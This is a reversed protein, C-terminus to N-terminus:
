QLSPPLSSTIMADQEVPTAGDHVAKEFQIEEKSPGAPADMGPQKKRKKTERSAKKEADRRRQDAKQQKWFERKAETSFRYLEHNLILWGGAIEKIRRGENDPTFSEKDPSLLVRLAAACESESVRARHALAAPAARVIGEADKMALMTIWVIRTEKDTMWISSDLIKSWLLTFGNM